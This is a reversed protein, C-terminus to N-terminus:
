KAAAASRARATSSRPPGPRRAEPRRRSRRCDRAGVGCRSGSATSRSTSMAAFGRLRGDAEAAPPAGTRSCRHRTLDLREEVWKTSHTADIFDPHDLIAIDAPITTAVGEVVMEGLARLM